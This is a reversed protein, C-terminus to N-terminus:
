VRVGILLFDDIQTSDGMWEALAKEFRKHQEDMPLKHISLLLEKLRKYGFKKSDEGGFQDSVGDSFVYFTDGQQLEMEHLTYHRVDEHMIGGINFHDGKTETLEGNRILYLYRNASAFALKNEKHHIACLAIDMGDHNETVGHKQRLTAQIEHHLRNLIEDPKTRHESNVIQNLHDNGIMSLFAGPVGHGTCDVAAIFSIDNPKSFWYFDGSVIGKPRYFVFSEPLAKRIENMSPMIADQIRKAYEISSTIEWNKEEVTKKQLEIERNKRDLEENAKKKTRYRSYILGLMLLALIGIAIVTNRVTIQKTLRLDQVEKEKSLLEIERQKQESEFKVQMEALERASVVRDLSDSVAKAQQQFQYSRQFDGADAYTQSLKEYVNIQDETSGYHKAERLARTLYNLGLKPQKKQKYIDGISTLTITSYNHDGIRKQVKEAELFYTLSKNLDGTEMFYAGLNNLTSIQGQDDGINKQLSLAKETSELAKEKDGLMLYVGGINSYKGATSNQDGLSESIQLSNQYFGLAQDYKKQQYYINGINNLTNAEGVKNGLERFLHLATLFNDLARERNGHSRHVIGMNNLANALGVRDGMQQFIKFSNQYYSLARDLDGQNKYVLGLNNLSSAVGELDNIDQRIALAREYNLIADKYHGEKLYVNGINNLSLAEDKRNGNKRDNELAKNHFSLSKTYDGKIRNATGTNNYITSVYKESGLLISLRLAEKSLELSRDPDIRLLSESTAVLIRIRATDNKSYKTQLLQSLSDAEQQQALTQMAVLLISLFLLFRKM